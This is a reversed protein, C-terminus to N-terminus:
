KGIKNKIDNSNNRIKSYELTAMTFAKTYIKQYVYSNHMDITNDTKKIKNMGIVANLYRMTAKIQVQRIISLGKIQM